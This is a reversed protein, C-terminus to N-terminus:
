SLLAPSLLRKGLNLAYVENRQVLDIRLQSDQKHQAMGDPECGACVQFLMEMKM